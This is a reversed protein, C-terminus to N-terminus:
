HARSKLASLQSTIESPLFLNDSIGAIEEAERWAEELVHLEGEMARRESDEHSIMELSLRLEPDLRALMAGKGFDNWSRKRAALHAADSFAGRADDSATALKVARQVVEATAGERNLRPLLQGAARVADEGHIDTTDSDKYRWWPTESHGHPRHAIRLGWPQHGTPPLLVTEDVDQRRVALLSGDPSPVRAHIKMRRYMTAGFNALHFHSMGLAGLSLGLSPGVIPVAAAAAIAAGMTILHRRRRSGFQDGYRWAAFEPRLPSGIRVLELGETLRALGIEDTSTRLKTGRFSRECQEIAEWREELPSLNWRECKRCVVWLRGKAADFALRRGVPFQEIAENAGLNNKCFLCTSYM